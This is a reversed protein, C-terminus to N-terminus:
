ASVFASIERASKTLKEGTKFNHVEYITEKDGPKWPLAKGLGWGKKQLGRVADSINMKKAKGSVRAGATAAWRGIEDRPQDSM